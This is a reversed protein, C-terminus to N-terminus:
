AAMQSVVESMPSVGNHAIAQVRYSYEKGTTLGTIEHKVRTSSIIRTWAGDGEQQDVYYLVVGKEKKFQLKLMGALATRTVKLNTPAAPPPLPSPQKALQFGSSDLKAADGNCVGRVYGAQAELMACAQRVLDNRVLKSQRSGFTAEEIAAELLDGLSTMDALKVAPDTFNANGTMKAVVNRILALVAEPKLKRLYLAINFKRM